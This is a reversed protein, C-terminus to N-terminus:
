KYFLGVEQSKNEYKSSKRKYSYLKLDENNHELKKRM